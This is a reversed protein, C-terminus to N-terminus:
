EAEALKALKTLSQALGAPLAHEIKSNDRFSPDRQKLLFFMGLLRDRSPTEADEVMQWLMKKLKDTSREYADNFALAFKEDQQRWDYLTRRGVGVHEAAEGLTAGEAILVLVQKKKEAKNAPTVRHPHQVGERGMPSVESLQRLEGPSVVGRKAPIEV